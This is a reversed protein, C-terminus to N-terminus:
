TNINKNNIIFILVNCILSYTPPTNVKLSRGLGGLVM